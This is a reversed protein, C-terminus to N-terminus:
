DLKPLKLYKAIRRLGKIADEDYRLLISLFDYLKRFDMELGRLNEQNESFWQDMQKSYGYNYIRSALEKTEKLETVKLDPNIRTLLEDFDDLNMVANQHYHKLDGKPIVIKATRGYYTTTRKGTTTTDIVEIVENEELKELHFYLNTRKVIDESALRGKIGKKENGNLRDLIETASLARRKRKDRTKPHITWIGEVLIDIIIGRPSPAVVKWYLDTEFEKVIPLDTWFDIQISHDTEETDAQIIENSMHHNRSETSSWHTILSSDAVLSNLYNPPISYKLFDYSNLINFDVNINLVILSINETRM